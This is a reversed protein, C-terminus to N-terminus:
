GVVAVVVPASAVASGATGTVMDMGKLLAAVPVAKLIPCGTDDSKRGKKAGRGGVDMARCASLM